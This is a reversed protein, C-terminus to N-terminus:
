KNVYLYVNIYLLMQLIGIILIEKEFCNYRSYSFHIQIWQFM